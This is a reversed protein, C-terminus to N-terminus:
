SEMVDDSSNPAQDRESEALPVQYKEDLWRGLDILKCRDSCFPFYSARERDAPDDPPEVPKGCIPCQLAM